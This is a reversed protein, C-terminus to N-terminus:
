SAHFWARSASVRRSMSTSASSGGGGGTAASGCSPDSAEVADVSEAVDIDMDVSGESAVIEGSCPGWGDLTVGAAATM